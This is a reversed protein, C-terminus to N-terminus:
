FFVPVVFAFVFKNFIFGAVFLTVYLLYDPPRSHKANESTLLRKLTLEHTELRESILKLDEYSPISQAVAQNIFTALQQHNAKLPSAKDLTQAIDHPVEKWLLTMLGIAELIQLYEDDEPVNQFQACLLLFRERQKDPLLESVRKLTETASM